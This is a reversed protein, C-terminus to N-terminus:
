TVAWKAVRGGSWRSRPKVQRAACAYPSEYRMINLSIGNGPWVFSARPGCAPRPNFVGTRCGQKTNSIRFYAENVVLLEWSRFCSSNRIKPITLIISISRLWINDSLLFLKTSISLFNQSCITDYQFEGVGNIENRLKSFQARSFNKFNM